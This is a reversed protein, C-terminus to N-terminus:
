TLVSAEGTESKRKARRYLLARLWGGGRGISSARAVLRVVYAKRM